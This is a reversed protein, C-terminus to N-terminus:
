KFTNEKKHERIIQNRDGDPIMFSDVLAQHISKFLGEKYTVNHGEYIDITVIPM